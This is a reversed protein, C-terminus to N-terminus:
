TSPSILSRRLPRRYNRHLFIPEFNLWDIITVIPIGKTLSAVAVFADTGDDLRARCVVAGAFPTLSAASMTWAPRNGCFAHGPEAQAKSGFAIIPQPGYRLDDADDSEARAARAKVEAFAKAVAETAAGM